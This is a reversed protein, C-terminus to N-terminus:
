PKPFQLHPNLPCGFADTTKKASKRADHGQKSDTEGPSAIERQLGWSDFRMRRTPDVFAVPPRSLESPPVARVMLGQLFAKSRQDDAVWLGELNRSEIRTLTLHTCTRKPRVFMAERNLDGKPRAAIM